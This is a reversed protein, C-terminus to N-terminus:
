AAWGRLRDNSGSGAAVRARAAAAAACSASRSRPRLSDWLAAAWLLRAPEVEAPPVPPVGAALGDPVPVSRAGAAFALVAFALVAFALGAFALVAFASDPATFDFVVVRAVGSGVVPFCFGGSGAALVGFRDAAALDVAARFPASAAGGVALVESAVAGL